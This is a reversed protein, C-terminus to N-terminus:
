VRAVQLTQRCGKPFNRCGWFSKKDTGAERLVMKIGCTPCTPTRYDGETAVALLRAQADSPLAAIMGMFTHGAILELPNGRAFDIAERSFTGTTMFIGREVHRAAVVGLLERVPKVGVAITNWSKCQILAFPTASTPKFLEADVGGDSGFPTITAIEGVERWYAACLQEFRHWEVAGLLDLSWALPRAAAPGTSHGPPLTSRVPTGSADRLPQTLAWPENGWPDVRKPIPPPEAKKREQVFAVLSLVAFVALSFGSLERLLAGIFVTFPNALLASGVVRLGVFAAIGVVARGKWSLAMLVDINSPTSARLRRKRAM